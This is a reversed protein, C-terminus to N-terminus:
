NFITMLILSRFIINQSLYPTLIMLVWKHVAGFTRNKATKVNSIPKSLTHGKFNQQFIFSFKM